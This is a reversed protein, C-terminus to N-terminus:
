AATEPIALRAELDALKAELEAIRARLRTVKQAQKQRNRRNLAAKRHQDCCYAQHPYTAPIFNQGCHRCPRV